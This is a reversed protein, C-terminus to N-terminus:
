RAKKSPPTPVPAPETAAVPAPEPAPVLPAPRLDAGCEPCSIAGKTIKAGCKCTPATEGPKAEVEHWDACGCFACTLASKDANGCAQCTRM